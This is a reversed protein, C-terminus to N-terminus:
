QGVKQCHNQWFLKARDQQLDLTKETERVTEIHVSGTPSAITISFKRDKLGALIIQTNQEVGWPNFVVSPMDLTLNSQVVMDIALPSAIKTWDDSVIQGASHVVPLYGESTKNFQVDYAKGSEVANLRAQRLLRVLDNRTATEATSSWADRVAPFIFAALLVCILMVLVLEVLTFASNSRTALTMKQAKKM